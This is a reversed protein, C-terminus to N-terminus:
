LYGGQTHYVYDGWFEVPPTPVYDFELYKCNFVDGTQLYEQVVEWPEVITSETIYDGTNLTTLKTHTSEIIATSFLKMAEPSDYGLHSFISSGLVAVISRGETSLAVPLKGRSRKPHNVEVIHNLFLNGFKKYLLNMIGAQTMGKIVLQEPKLDSRNISLTLDNIYEGADNGAQQNWKSTGLFLNAANTLGVRDSHVLPFKHCISYEKNAIGDTISNSKSRVQILLEFDKISQMTPFTEITGARKITNIVQSGVTTNAYRNFRNHSSKCETCRGEKSSTQKDDPCPHHLYGKCNVLENSETPNARNYAKRCSGSCFKADSRVPSFISSCQLCDKDHTSKALSAKQHTSKTM